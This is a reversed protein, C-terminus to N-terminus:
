AHTIEEYIIIADYSVLHLLVYGILEQLIRELPIFYLFFEALNIFKYSVCGNCKDFVLRMM